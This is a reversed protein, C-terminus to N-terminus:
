PSKYSEFNKQSRRSGETIMLMRQQDIIVGYAPVFRASLCQIVTGLNRKRPDLQLTSLLITNIMPLEELHLEPRERDADLILEYLHCRMLDKDKLRQFDEQKSLNHTPASHDNDFRICDMPESGLILGSFILGYSYVDTRLLESTSALTKWEPAAYAATGGVLHRIHGTDLFSHSFDAIKAHLKPNYFILVNEPKIDGHIV